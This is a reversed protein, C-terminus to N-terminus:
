KPYETAIWRLLARRRAAERRNRRIAWTAVLSCILLVVLWAGGFIELDSM